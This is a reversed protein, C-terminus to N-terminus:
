SAGISQLNHAGKLKQLKHRLTRPSIGLREAAEKKSDTEQLAAQILHWEAQEKASVLDQDAQNRHDHNEPRDGVAASAAVSAFTSAAASAFAPAAVSAFASATASAIASATSASPKRTVSRHASPVTSTDSASAAATSRQSGPPVAAIGSAVSRATIGVKM